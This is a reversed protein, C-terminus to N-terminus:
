PKEVVEIIRVALGLDRQDAGVRVTRDVHVVVEVAEKGPAVHVPAAITVPQNCDRITSRPGDKGDITVWAILPQAAVQVPACNAEVRVEGEGTKPAGLRVSAEKPMWRYDGESGYWSPGLLSEMLPHGVEIRRAITGEVATAKFVKTIDRLRGDDVAYVLARNQALAVREEAEPLTYDAINALEPYPTMKRASEPTLYVDTAGILRFPHNYVGLWFIPESVGDLLIIKGPDREHVSQVDLVLRKLPVSRAWWYRSAARATPIQFALYAALVGFTAAQALMGSKFAVELAWAGLLALGIAPVMVYYDTIHSHIPLFPALAILFWGLCFIPIRDGRLTRWGAFGLVAFTLILTAALAIPRVWSFYEAAASPGLAIGWYNALTGLTSLGASLAYFAENKPKIKVAFFVITFIASPILLLVTQRILKRAFCAVYLIAIFPYVVNIELVGFGFLFTAWQLVNYRPNNTEVYRMLGYFALLFVGSCLIENYACTWTLPTALASNAVWLIPAVFAALVSKCLRKAVVALLAIVALQTVYVAIRYPLAHIGFLSYFGMFFARESFPRISGQALPAFMAYCLQQANHVHLRLGLWAFDDAQFWARLTYKYLISCFLM